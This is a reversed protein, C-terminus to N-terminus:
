RKYYINELLPDFFYIQDNKKDYYTNEITLDTIIRDDKIGYKEKNKKLEEKVKINVEAIRKNIEIQKILPIIRRSFIKKLTQGLYLDPIYDYVIYSVQRQPDCFAFHANIIKTKTNKVLILARTENVGSRGLDLNSKFTAIARENATTREKIGSNNLEKVFFKRIKGNHKVSIIYGVNSSGSSPLLRLRKIQFLNNPDTYEKLREVSVRYFEKLLGPTKSIIKKALDSYSVERNKSTIFTFRNIRIKEPAKIEEKEKKQEKQKNREKLLKLFDMKRQIRQEPSLTRSNQYSIKRLDRATPKPQRKSATPKTQGKSSKM